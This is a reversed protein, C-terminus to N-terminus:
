SDRRLQLANYDIDWQIDGSPYLMTVEFDTHEFSVIKEIFDTNRSRPITSGDVWNQLKFLKGENIM